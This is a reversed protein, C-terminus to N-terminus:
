SPENTQKPNPMIDKQLEANDAKRHFPIKKLWLRFAQWHIRSFVGIGLLPYKVSYLLLRSTTLTERHGRMWSVLTTDGNEIDDIEIKLKEDPVTVRFRFQTDLSSFPSVYFHKAVTRSFYNPKNDVPSPIHWLKIERFTNCVEVVVQKPTQEADFILYFCVPNFIYGFARPLTLLRIKDDTNLVVNQEALWAELKNRVAGEKQDLHDRDYFSFASFQNYRFLGLQQHLLPLEELAIDIFFLHYRFEHRKPALRKHVVECPYLCSTIEAGM